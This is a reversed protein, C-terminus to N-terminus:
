VNAQDPFRKLWFLPTFMARLRPLPYKDLLWIAAARRSDEGDIRRPILARHVIRDYAAVPPFRPKWHAAQQIFDDPIPTQLYKTLYRFAFYAPAQLGLLEARTKLENWFNDDSGFHRLLEDMDALDRLGHTFDGIRFLHAASHLFLDAPAPCLFRPDSAFPTAADIIATPDIQLPDRLPLINHHLDLTIGRYHHWMPPIEHLWRRYYRTNRSDKQNGKWGRDRLRAEVDPIAEAPVLLDVDDCVRGNAPPLEGAIYAAGKLLVLPCDLGALARGLRNIEWAINQRNHKSYKDASTLHWHVEPPISDLLQLEIAQRALRYVVGTQRAVPLLTDWDGLTLEAMEHPRRIVDLLQTPNTPLVRKM